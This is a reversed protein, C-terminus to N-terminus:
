PRDVCARCLRARGSSAKFQKGSSAANGHFDEDDAATAAFVREGPFQFLRGRDIADKARGPIGARCLDTFVDRDLRVIQGGQRAERSFVSMSRVTTPGSSGSAAPMTSIKRPPLAAHKRVSSILPADRTTSFKQSPNSACLVSESQARPMKSFCSAGKREQFLRMKRDHDLRVSEREPFAHDHGVANLFPLDRDFRHHVFRRNPSAPRRRNISSHRAPSPTSAARAPPHSSNECARSRARDCARTRHRYPGFVPPM